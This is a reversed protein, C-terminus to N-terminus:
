AGSLLDDPQPFRALLRNGLRNLQESVDKAHNGADLVPPMGEAANIPGQRDLALWAAVAASSIDTGRGVQKAMEALQNPVPTDFVFAYAHDIWHEDIGDWLINGVNRDPNCIAEDAVLALPMTPLESIVKYALLTAAQAAPTGPPIGDLGMRQALNPYAQEASAFALGAAEDILYPTPVPLGWGRLLLAAFAEALVETPPGRKLIAAQARGNVRLTCRIAGSVGIGVATESGAIVEGWQIMSQGEM